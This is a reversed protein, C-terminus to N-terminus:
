IQKFLTYLTTTIPLLKCYSELDGVNSFIKNGVKENTTKFRKHSKNKHLNFLTSKKFVLHFHSIVRYNKYNFLNIAENTINFFFFLHYITINIYNCEHIIKWNVNCFYMVMDKYYAHKFDYYWLPCNRSNHSNFVLELNLPIHYRDISLQRTDSAPTIKIIKVVAYLLIM